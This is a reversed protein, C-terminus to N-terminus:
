SWLKIVKKIGDELSNPTPEFNLFEKSKTLDAYRKMIEKYNDHLKEAGIRKIKSDSNALKVILKASDIVSMQKDNGINFIQGSLNKLSILIKYLGDITDDIYCMSRTQKGSGHVIIDQNKLAANIFIPIHGGSWGRNSRESFCGFLRVVTVDIKGEKCMNLLLQEEYLKSLAYSYREITPPGITIEDNENFTKSNGYIDSTSSFIIRASNTMALEIVNNLMNTNNKMVGASSITSSPAKKYAALHFIVDINKFNLFARNRVDMYYFTFRPHKKAKQINVISGFSLNDVGIVEYNQALLKDALHSGILGAVGTILVKM